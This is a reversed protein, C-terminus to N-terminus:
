NNIINALGLSKLIFVKNIKILKDKKINLRQKFTNEFFEKDEIYRQECFLQEKLNFVKTKKVGFKNRVVQSIEINCFYIKRKLHTELFNSDNAELIINNNIRIM